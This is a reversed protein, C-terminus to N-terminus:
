LGGVVQQYTAAWESGEACYAAADATVKATVAARSEDASASDFGNREELRRIARNLKQSQDGSLAFGCVERMASITYMLELDDDARAAGATALIMAGALLLVKKM